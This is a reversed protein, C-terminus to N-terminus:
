QAYYGSGRLNPHQVFDEFLEEQTSPQPLPKSDFGSELINLVCRYTHTRLHLARLCAAEMRGAGFKKSLSLLGLCSRYAQAEHERGELLHHAMKVAGPGITNAWNLIRGPTWEMYARHAAPMHEKATTYAKEVFSRPHMAVRQGKHLFEVTRATIRAELEKKVLQYPASYHHHDIEIHYNFGLRVKKIRFFEFTGTPLAKLAPKDVKEFQSQRCGELRKFPRTNLVVLLERIAQNLEALSFFQRHRLRALIWRQVVQVGAEAKAKDRPKYPRAPMVTTGYHAALAWYTANLEPEYRDSKNVGSRLNDPVLQAPVGSFFIFARQHSAIWDQAQQTWTAEAFTYNSAGMVAVFVQAEQIEGTSPDIVEVTQGAYDVFLKDGAKHAQRMTVQLRAQWQRFHYCFQSYGYGDQPHDSRYEEWLLYLTVNKKRLEENLYQHNLPAFASPPSHKQSFFLQAELDLDSLGEPLPWSLGARAARNLYESVTGQALGLAKSIQNRGVQSEFKLRLVEKIRRMSIKEAPM